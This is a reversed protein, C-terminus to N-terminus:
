MFNVMIAYRILGGAVCAIVIALIMIFTQYKVHAKGWKTHMIGLYILVGAILCIFSTIVGSWNM